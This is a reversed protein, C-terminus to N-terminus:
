GMATSNGVVAVRPGAPLPQYGLLLASDFLQAISEVRIVGAQEFLAQVSADDVEAGTAASGAPVAHRGSKVVIVPKNRAVRRAIRSFKRANGFTELYLLVVDTDPDSDWYQLLDNASIDARNGASVFTSLGLGREAAAALIAIGLAGSQCFFGVRGPAPLVPALTANLAVEPDNNAVGLASPGIVRMGHARAAEVMRREAAVGEPGAESFGASIVVLAKVGKDLCDDLVAEVQNAPVAVVALDVDDPIARVSDYARVGRVSRHEANVPYVPGTFGAALLNVLVAHGVKFRDTSAGIVAVSRPTLVNRVSRAESARERFNRVTLLADSPDINFELHVVGGDFSRKIQYGAEKFVGVMARNEALVEAVFSQIGREAAAAALHELLVSGLGRGQHADAVVFAVEASLGEGVNELRDYRGVAIIRGGLLVVMAVRDHHDVTSFRALDRPSMTPYPGFYRLYRTRESLHGHFDVLQDADEPIIPRIHVTAGDSALADGEWHKPYDHPDWQRNDDQAAPQDM